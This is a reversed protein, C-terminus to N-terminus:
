RANPARSKNERHNERPMPRMTSWVPANSAGPSPRDPANNAIKRPVSTPTASSAETPTIPLSVPSDEIAASLSLRPLRPALRGANSLTKCSIPQPENSIMTIRSAALRSPARAKLSLLRSLLGIAHVSNKPANAVNSATLPGNVKTRWTKRLHPMQNSSAAHRHNVQFRNALASKAAKHACFPSPESGNATPNSM